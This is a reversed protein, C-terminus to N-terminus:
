ETCSWWCFFQHRLFGKPRGRLRLLEIKELSISIFANLRDTQLKLNKDIADIENRVKENDENDVAGSQAWMRIFLMQYHIADSCYYFTGIHQRASNWDIVMTKLAVKRQVLDPLHIPCQFGEEELKDRNSVVFTTNMLMEVRQDDSEIPRDLFLAAKGSLIDINQRLATRAVFYNEYTRKASDSLYTRTRENVPGYYDLANKYSYFLIQQLNMVSSLAQAVESFTSSATSLEDQYRALTKEDRWSNYQFYAGLVTGLLGFFALNTAFRYPRDLWMFFKQLTSSRVGPDDPPV